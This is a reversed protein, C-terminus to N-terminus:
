SSVPGRCEQKTSFSSTFIQYMKACSFLYELFYFHFPCSNFRCGKSQLILKRLFKWSKVPTSLEVM